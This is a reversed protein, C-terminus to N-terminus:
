LPNEESISFTNTHLTERLTVWGGLIPIWFDVIAYYRGPTLEVPPECPANPPIGMYWNLDRSVGFEAAARYPVNSEGRTCFSEFGTATVKRVDVRYVGNFDRHITRDVSVRIPEGVAADAIEIRKVTMWWEFPIAHALVHPLVQLYFITALVAVILSFRSMGAM